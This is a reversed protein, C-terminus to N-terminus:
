EIQHAVEHVKLSGDVGVSVKLWGIRINEPKDSPYFNRAYNFVLYRDKLGAWAPYYDDNVFYRFTSDNYTYLAEQRQHYYFTFDQIHEAINTQYSRRWRPDEKSIVITDGQEFPLAYYNIHTFRDRVNQLAQLPSNKSLSYVSDDTRSESVVFEESLSQALIHAAGEIRILNDYRKLSSDGVEGGWKTIRLVEYDPLDFRYFEKIVKGQKSSDIEAIPNSVIKFNIAGSDNGVVFYKEGEDVTPSNLPNSPEKQCSYFCCILIFSSIVVSKYGRMKRRFM